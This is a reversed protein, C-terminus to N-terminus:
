LLYGRDSNQKRRKHDRAMKEASGRETEERPRREERGGARKEEPLAYAMGGFCIGDEEWFEGVMGMGMM